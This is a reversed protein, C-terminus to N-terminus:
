KRLRAARETKGQRELVDALGKRAVDYGPDVMLAEAFRSGAASLNGEQEDLLGLNAYVSANRPDAAISAEFAHRAPAAQGTTAYAVGLLAWAHAHRGNRSVVRGALDVAQAVDGRLYRATADYYLTEDRDAGGLERMRALVGDLREVDQQDAYISAAQELLEISFPAAPPQAVVELAAPVDGRAALVRSLEVRVPVSRPQRSLLTRLWEVLEKEHRTAAAARALGDLTELDGAGLDTAKMFSEYAMNFAEADIEIRARRRWWDAPADRREDAMWPPIGIRESLARLRTAHDSATRGYISRPGSFELQLRDDTQVPAGDAFRALLREDGLFLSLLAPADHVSVTGLDSRVGGLAQWRAPLASLREDLPRAAGIFILDGDGVLWLTGHPFVSAFTSLLSRLDAESMDYTHAWQCLMGDPALHARAAQLFERTFLTAMGAIWPNSPESIIVDYKRPALLLHSRGDGIILHTRRDALARRNEADFWTSATVVEPSIELVDVRGVGHTLVAGTTVGSGLGLVCVNQPHPHLLLPLHGLLKQTLMDGGNSADIKGDIAMSTTGTVRRVSVTAAAGESYYLLTGAALASELDLGTYYPAYKYAGASVLAPDWAPMRAAIAAVAAAAVWISIKAYRTALSSPRTALPLLAGAALTLVAAVVTGRLGFFPILVFGGVLAGSIAGGTNAACIVAVDRAVTDLRRVGAAVALPFATGLAFTMPVLLAGVLVSQRVVVTSFSVGPAAAIEAITLPIRGVIPYVVVPCGAAIILAAALWLAPARVRGALRSGVASGLALGGIFAALMTSFAYTTPGIVLALARTWTVEFVLSAFGSIALTSAAIGLRHGAAEAPERAAAKATGRTAKRRVRVDRTRSGVVAPQAAPRRVSLRWAGTAAILSGLCAVGLTLRLGVGPLLVFGALVAGATSGVTNAAYMRGTETGAREIREVMWRTAFPLTAGMAATAPLLLALAVLLRVVGFVPGPEGTGYAVALLPRAAALGLPLLLASCAVVVELAAYIRLARTRDVRSVYRGAVVAGVAMGGMFAALVTSAGAVTHGMAMTLLRTWAVEDVLAAAGSVAYILLFVRRAPM